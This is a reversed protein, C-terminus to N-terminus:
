RSRRTTASAARAACSSCPWRRSPPSRRARRARRRERARPAPPGRGRGGRDHARHAGALLRGLAVGPRRDVGARAPAGRRDGPGAARLSEVARARRRGGGLAPRPHPGGSRSHRQERRARGRDHGGHGRAGGGRARPADVATIWEAAGALADRRLPMPVTGAHGAEGRFGVHVRSQGAISSVVGVPLGEAELVPGQEIHVECYGLLSAPDRAEGALADPDGGFSVIAERMSIGEADTRELYDPDFTGAVVKSGLYATNYRVGEEDAFGVVELAFPLRGGEDRLKQVCALAVLVGLPGDYKGADRVSDLHSGLLLTKDGHLPPEWRGVVNGIADVRATMDLERMWYLVAENAQDLATTAFRRTLRDPEESITALRDCQRLVKAAYDTQTTM